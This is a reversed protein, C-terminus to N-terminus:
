SIYDWMLVCQVEYYSSNPFKKQLNQKALDEHLHRNQNLNQQNEMNNTEQTKPNTFSWELWNNSCAM